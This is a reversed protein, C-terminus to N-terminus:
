EMIIFLYTTAAFYDMLLFFIYAMHTAYIHKLLLEPNVSNPDIFMGCVILKGIILNHLYLINIATQIIM